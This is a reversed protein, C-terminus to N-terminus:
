IQSLANINREFHRRAFLFYFLVGIAYVGVGTWFASQYGLREAVSGGILMGVGMGLDWSTLITSNATGRQDHSALNIFMTQAAPWLHGNGLGIIFPALYYAWETQVASFLIFGSISVLIGLSANRSIKGERLSRSGTLRSIILGVAFLAFFLGTGTTIGLTERGYIAVYTSLIGYAFALSFLVLFLAWGKLLFFRDLSLAKKEKNIERPRLRLTSDVVAGLLSCGLSLAFLLDYSGYKSFLLLGISPAIATAINNSM